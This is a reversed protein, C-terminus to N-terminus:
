GLIIMGMLSYNLNIDEKCLRNCVNLIIDGGKRYFDWGFTLFDFEADTRNNLTINIRSLDIGNLVVATNKENFGLKVIEKRYYDAVSLLTARKSFCSYQLKNLLNRSVKISKQYPDHLHWFIKVTKPAMITAPIDYLEFHSHVIKIDNEQYIKRFVSYTKPLIRAKAVPLFYVKSRKQLELCWKQNKAGEAFAYITHINQKKLESELTILSAIFNGPYPAAYACVQLVSSM